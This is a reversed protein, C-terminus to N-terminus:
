DHDVPGRPANDVALCALLQLKCARTRRPMRSPVRSCGMSAPRRREAQSAPCQTTSKCTRSSSRHSKEPSYSTTTHEGKNYACAIEEDRSGEQRQDVSDGRGTCEGQVPDDAYCSPQEAVKHTICDALMALISRKLREHKVWHWGSVAPRDSSATASSKSSYTDLQDDICLRELNRADSVWRRDEKVAVKTHYFRQAHRASRLWLRRRPVIRLRREILTKLAM